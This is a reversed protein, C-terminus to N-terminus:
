TCSPCTCLNRAAAVFGESDKLNAPVNEVEVALFEIFLHGDKLLSRCSSSRPCAKSLASLCKVRWKARTAGPEQCICFGAESCAASPKPVDQGVHHFHVDRKRTWHADITAAVFDRAVQEEVSAFKATFGRCWQAPMSSLQSALNSHLCCHRRPQWSPSSGRLLFCWNEGRQLKGLTRVRRVNAEQLQKTNIDGASQAVIQDAMQVHQDNVHADDDHLRLEALAAVGRM